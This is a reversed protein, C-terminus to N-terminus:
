AARRLVLVAGGVYPPRTQVIAGGEIPPRSTVADISAHRWECSFEGAIGRLDVALEDDEPQFAIIADRRPDALAFGSSVLDGSPVLSALDFEDAVKRILGMAPRVAPGYPPHNVFDGEWPDMFIPNLGRTFSRWVWDVDGGIGWVHDTDILIVKRGDAPPPDHM